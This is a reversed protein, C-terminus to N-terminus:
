KVGKLLRLLFLTPFLLIFFEFDKALLTNLNYFQFLLDSCKMNIYSDATWIM